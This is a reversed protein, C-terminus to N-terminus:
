FAIKASFVAKEPHMRRKQNQKFDVLISCSLFDSDIESENRLTLEESPTGKPLIVAIRFRNRPNELYSIGAEIRPAKFGKYTSKQRNYRSKVQADFLLAEPQGIQSTAKLNWDTEECRTTADLCTAAIKTHIAPPGSEAAMKFRAKLTDADIPSSVNANGSIKTGPIQPLAASVNQSVWLKNKLISSSLRAHAPIESGHIYAATNWSLRYSRGFNRAQKETERYQFKAKILPSSQGQQQWIAINLGSLHAQLLGSSAGEANWYMAMANFQKHMYGAQIQTTISTDLLGGIHFNGIPFHAVTGWLTDLPIQSHIEKTSIDGFHAEYNGAKYTLLNQSGLHLTYRYFTIQLEEHHSVIHGTTDIRGKWLAYGHPSLTAGTNRKKDRAQSRTQDRKQSRKQNRKAARTEPEGPDEIEECPEQAYIEALACAEEENGEELLSLIDEAEDQSIIGDDWWEFVDSETVNTGIAHSAGTAFLTALVFAAKALTFQLRNKKM